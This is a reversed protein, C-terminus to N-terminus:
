AAQQDTQMLALIKELRTIVDNTALLDQRQAIDVQLSPAIADAVAGPERIRFAPTRLDIKLRAQFAEFVKRSLALAEEGADRTQVVPAVEAALFPGEFWNVVTVRELGKVLLKMSEDQLIMVDLLGATVGVSYLADTAPIDDAAVRQTVAVFRKDRTMANEVARKSSDRGVFLPVIMDPFLVLDRIPIVPPPGVSVARPVNTATTPRAEQQDESQIRAALVNWDQFGLM